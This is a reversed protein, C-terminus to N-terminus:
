DNLLTHTMSTGISVVFTYDSSLPPSNFFRVEEGFHRGIYFYIKLVYGRRNCYYMTELFNNNACGSEFFLRIRAIPGITATNISIYFKIM